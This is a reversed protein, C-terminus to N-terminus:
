ASALARLRRLVSPLMDPLDEAILGPGFASAAEGHLWAAAAAAEFPPMGQALLGAVFGALVDGTGGAALDPPANGNIAARGDPAAIVTDAGKLLVTMGARRAAERARELKGAAAALDPFLRAFEGEHPTMLAAERVAAFLEQPNGGFSTIADADIVCRKGAALGALTRRRTAEGVGHGPGILLANRRGDALLENFGAEDAIPATIVGPMDAAYIAHTAPTCATTVLGAGIRRAARAALRAAGTMVAGGAILLHGRRYKHDAPQPWPYRHLWLSPGNAFITPRITDLVSAAIGIDAVTVEGALTRGPLLLHAPKLRVFTVTAAAQPAVGLVQGTDGQVGSPLDVALCPLRRANIAEIVAAAAGDVPRVLGAGFIADVVVAAGDLAAPELPQVDGPWAAAAAAADGRLRGREGLLAVRVPWGAERLQCAAVFGDGGNNGPGCLVAVPGRRWRRRVERAVAEGAAEMLREGPVGGAIALADARAMEAVCLVAADAAAIM